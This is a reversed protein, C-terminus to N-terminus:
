VSGFMKAKEHFVTGTELVQELRRTPNDSFRDVWFRRRLDAFSGFLKSTLVITSPLCAPIPQQGLRHSPYPAMASLTPPPVGDQLPGLDRDKMAKRERELEVSM